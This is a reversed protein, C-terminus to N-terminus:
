QPPIFGLDGIKEEIAKDIRAIEDATLEWETSKCNDVAEKVNRVGLLSTTVFDKQTNWNIAIQAVPVNREKAIEDLVKLLEMVKSFGPEKFHPYGYLVRVDDPPLKPLTRIAGTLLGSALSSHTMVGINNDGAWKMNEEEDRIIMSYGSQVATIDIYKSMEKMDEITYNSVGLYRVKGEKVWKTICEAVEEFPVNPDPAHVLFEDVYDVGMLKM